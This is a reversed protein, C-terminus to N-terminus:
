FDGDWCNPPPKETSYIFLGTDGFSQKCKWGLKELEKIVTRVMKQLADSNLSYKKGFKELEFYSNEDERIIHEYLERRLYCLARNYHLQPFNCKHKVNLCTPFEKM